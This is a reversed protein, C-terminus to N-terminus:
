SQTRSAAFPTRLFLLGGPGFGFIGGAIFFYLILYQPPHRKLRGAAFLVSRGVFVEGEEVIHNELLLSCFGM